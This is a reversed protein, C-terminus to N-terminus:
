PEDVTHGAASAAAPDFPHAEVSTIRGDAVTVLTFGRRDSLGSPGEVLWGGATATVVFQTGERTGSPPSTGAGYDAGYHLHGSLVLPVHRREFLGMVEAAHAAVSRKGALPIHALAIVRRPDAADLARKIFLLQSETFEDRGHACDLGLITWRGFAVSRYPSGFRALYAGWGRRDHNGPICVFPMTLKELVRQARDYQDPQGGHAIDGTVVVLDPKLRNVEDVIREVSAEGDPSYGFHLDTIQAVTFREPFVALVSVARRSRSERGGALAVLDYNGPACDAPIRFRAAYRPGRGPSGLLTLPIRAAHSVLAAAEVPSVWPLGAMAVLAFEAGPTLIDPKGFSPSEIVLRPPLVAMAIACAVLLVALLTYLRM